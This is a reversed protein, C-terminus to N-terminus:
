FDEDEVEDGLSNSVSAGAPEGIFGEEAEFGSAVDGGGSVLKLVQVVSPKLSLGYSKTTPM